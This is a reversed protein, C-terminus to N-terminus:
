EFVPNIVVLAADGVPRSVGRVQKGTHEQTLPTGTTYWRESGDAAKVKLRQGQVQVVTGSVPARLAAAATAAPIAKAPDAMAPGAAAALVLAAASAALRRTTARAGTQRLALLLGLAGLVLLLSSPEPIATGAGITVSASTAGFSVALASADSDVFLLAPDTPDISFLASSAPALALFSFTIFDFSDAQLADLVAASNGSLGFASISGTGTDLADGLFGFSGAETWDLQNLGSATDVLSFGLWAVATNDFHLSLDFGGLSSGSAASLDAISLRLSVVEGVALSSTSPTLSVLAAQAAGAWLASALSAAIVAARCNLFRM